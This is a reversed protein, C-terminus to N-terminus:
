NPRGASASGLAEECPKLRAFIEQAHGYSIPIPGFLAPPITSANVQNTDFIIPTLFHLLRRGLNHAFRVVKGPSRRKLSRLSNFHLLCSKFRRVVFSWGRLTAGNALSPLEQTENAIPPSFPAVTPVARLPLNSSGHPYGWRRLLAVCYRATGDGCGPPRGM